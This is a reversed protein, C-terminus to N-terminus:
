QRNYFYPSNLVTKSRSKICHDNFENLKGAAKWASSSPEIGKVRELRKLSKPPHRERYQTVGSQQKTDRGLAQLVSNIAADTGQPVTDIFAHNMDFINAGFRPSLKDRTSGLFVAGTLARTQSLSLPPNV